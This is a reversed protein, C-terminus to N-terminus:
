NLDSKNKKNFMEFPGENDLLDLSRQTEDIEGKMKKISNNFFMLVGMPGEPHFKAYLYVGVVISGLLALVHILAMYAYYLYIM